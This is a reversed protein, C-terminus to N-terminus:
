SARGRGDLLTELHAIRADKRALRADQRDIVANLRAYATDQTEVLTKLADVQDKYISLTLEFSKVTKIAKRENERREQRAKWWAFLKEARLCLFAAVAVIATLMAPNQMWDM